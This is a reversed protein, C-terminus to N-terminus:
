KIEAIIVGTECDSYCNINNSLFLYIAASYIGEPFRGNSKKVSDMLGSLKYQDVLDYDVISSKLEKFLDDNVRIAWKNRIIQDMWLAYISSSGFLQKKNRLMLYCFPTNGEVVTYRSGNYSMDFYIYHHATSYNTLNCYPVEQTTSLYRLKVIIAVVFVLVIFFFLIIWKKKTKMHSANNM